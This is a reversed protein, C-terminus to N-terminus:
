KPPSGTKDKGKPCVEKGAQHMALGVIVPVIVVALGIIWSDTTEDIFARQTSCLGCFRCLTLLAVIVFYVWFMCRRLLQSRLFDSAKKGYTRERIDIFDKHGPVEWCKEIKNIISLRINSKIDMIQCSVAWFTILTLGGITALIDPVKDNVYPVGLAAISLPFIVATFRYLLNDEHKWAATQEKFSEILLQDRRSLQHNTNSM